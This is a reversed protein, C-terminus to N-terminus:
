FPPIEHRNNGINGVLWGSLDVGRELSGQGDHIIGVLAGYQPEALDHTSFKEAVPAVGLDILVGNLFQIKGFGLSVVVDAQGSLQIFQM